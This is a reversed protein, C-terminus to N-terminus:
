PICGDAQVNPDDEEGGEEVSPNEEMWVVGDEGV